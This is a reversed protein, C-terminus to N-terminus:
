CQCEVAQILFEGLREPIEICLVCREVDRKSQYKGAREGAVAVKALMCQHFSPYNCSFPLSAEFALGVLNHSSGQGNM